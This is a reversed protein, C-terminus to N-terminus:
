FIGKYTGTRSRKMVKRLYCEIRGTLHYLSFSEGVLRTTAVRTTMMALVIGNRLRRKRGNVVDM